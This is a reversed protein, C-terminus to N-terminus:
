IWIKIIYSEILYLTIDSFRVTNLIVIHVTAVAGGWQLM